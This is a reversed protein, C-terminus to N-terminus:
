HLPTQFFCSSDVVTLQDLVSLDLTLKSHTWDEENTKVNLSAMM